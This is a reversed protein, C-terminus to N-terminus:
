RSLRPRAVCVVMNGCNSAQTRPKGDMLALEAILAFRAILHASSHGVPAMLVTLVVAVGVTCSSRPLHILQPKHEAVYESSNEFLREVLVAVRDRSARISDDSGDARSVVGSSLGLAIGAIKLFDSEILTIDVPHLAHSRSIPAANLGINSASRKPM